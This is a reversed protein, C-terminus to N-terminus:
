GEELMINKDFWEKLSALFDYSDDDDLGKSLDRIVGLAEKYADWAAGSMEARENITEEHIQINNKKVFNEEVELSGMLALEEKILQKLRSKTLKM